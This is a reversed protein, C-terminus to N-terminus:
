QKVVKITKQAGNVSVEVLYTGASLHKMDIQTTLANPKVNIVQQGIMNYVKVASIESKYNLNLMETVPNPYAKFSDLDFGKSSLPEIVNITYDEYAGYSGSYCPTVNVGGTNGFDIAGIRLRYNGLAQTAPVVFSANMIWPDTATTPEPGYYVKETAEDFVLDNNWDVWIKVDYEYDDTNFTINVPITAGQQVDTIMASYNGYNGAEAVTTNNITGMTVNTIGQGDVSIPAPKCYGTFFIGVASWDSFLGSGCNARVWVYYTTEATLGSLAATTVGAATTGSATTTGTPATNTTSYYYEYGGTPNSTSATWNINGATFSTATGTVSMPEACSPTLEIKFDDFNIGNPASPGAARVGFSYDGTTTPVFTYIFKTYTPNQYTQGAGTTGLTTTMSTASQGNGVGAVIEYGVTTDATRMWYSFDYSTGATLTVMPTFAWGDTSWTRRLSKTGSNANSAVITWNSSTNAYSWCDPFINTGAALSEFGETWPLTTMPACLTKFSAAISWESNGNTTGCNSRVWVYHMTNPALASLSATTTGAATSGTPTTAGDPATNTTSVYYHYGDSPASAPATWAIDASVSTINSIVVNTPTQCAPAAIVNITYDEYAGYSGSYCPTVNVGGTNGFDIAGIRLRYNGLAQTAPVVFSAALTTPNTSLSTGYYVKETADDFVLNNNWDIWIKTDYTFGTQFTISVPITATQQVDAIMASYNGYNGAEAVTTNNITGMTVNTIGQGDVSTPAPKCYGTFFCYPGSWVSTGDVGCDTRVYYCYTTEATLGEMEFNNAQGAFTPTGTPTFGQEGIEIDFLTGASTWSLTASTFTINTATLASPQSCPPLAEWIVDDIYVSNSEGSVTHANKFCLNSQAVPLTGPIVFFETATTAATGPLTVEQILTFSSQVGPTALYGVQLKRGAASSSFAKFRLRHTGAGLNSFVPLTAYAVTPTTGSSFMYLRNSPSMPAVSATTVNCSGTTGIRKWCDPMTTTGSVTLADFNENLITVASCETKFTFPGSWTSTGNTGGCIARVYYSYSTNPTLGTIQYNNAQGAVTPTGTPTFGVAGYEIDFSTATSTWSVTASTDTIAAATLNIPYECAPVMEVLLDDVFFDIDANGNTAGEVMRFAFRVTQGNYASLDFLETQGLHSPQVSANYTKLVTWNTTGSTSVLVEVFDDAEWPTTPANQTNYQTAGVKFMLRYNAAPITFQESILWDNTNSTFFNFRAAGTTGNNLWGDAAWSSATANMTVPGATLDGNKGETWCINPLYTAFNTLSPFTTVPACSTTFSSVMTWTSFDSVGCVSRVYVNYNTTASLGTIAKSLGTETGSTVLGTAGSGAAGSTRVEYEYGNAPAVSPAAWNITATTAMVNTAASAGPPICAPPAGQTATVNDVYFYYDGAGWVVRIRLYTDGSAPSFTVTKTACTAAPVHETGITGAVTWPGTASAGYEINATGFTNPTPVTAASWNVIKYDFSLTVEGANSTGISPSIFNITAAGSHANGRISSGACAQATTTTTAVGTWGGINSDFNQTYNIQAYTTFSLLFLVCTLLYQWLRTRTGSVLGASNVSNTNEVTSNFIGREYFTIKKM